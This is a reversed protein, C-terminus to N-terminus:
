VMPWIRGMVAGMRRGMGTLIPFPRVWDFARGAFQGDWFVSLNTPQM